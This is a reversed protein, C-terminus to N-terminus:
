GRRASPAREVALANAAPMVFGQATGNLLGIAILLWTAHLGSCMLIGATMAGLPDSGGHAWVILADRLHDAQDLSLRFVAAVLGTAAGAILSLIALVLLSGHGDVAEAGCGQEHNM